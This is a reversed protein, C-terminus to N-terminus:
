TSMREVMWYMGPTTFFLGHEKVKGGTAAEWTRAYNELQPRYYEILAPLESEVAHDTKYDVIVWGDSEEFVLDMQGRLISPIEEEGERVIHFPVEALCHPSQQARKWIESQRVSEVIEVAYPVLSVALDYEMIAAHAASHLDSGPHRMALELLSHIVSGWDPGLGGVSSIAPHPIKSLQKAASIRYTATTTKEWRQAIEQAAAKWAESPIDFVGAQQIQSVTLESLRPFESLHKKFFNWHNKEESKNRLTIVLQSGARTAAVYLLRTEEAAKFKQEEEDLKEWNVPQALVQSWGRRGPETSVALYGLVREGGRTVHLVVPHEVKGTPDALFVVPAELGKVKHLNMIRVVDGTGPRISIADQKEEETVLGQLVEVLTAFSWLMADRSRLIEVAKALAGAQEKGGLRAAAQTMLGLDDIIREVAVVVPLAHIWQTYRKLRGYVDEFAASTEDDLNKPVGAQFNFKGGVKHFQYLQSDSLGSLEGRLVTVLAVPDDPRSLAVLCDTLLALDRTENLGTGGTVEHPIGRARLAAAYQSLHKRGRTVILFDSPRAHSSIGATVEKPSRPMPVKNKITSEILAAIQMSEWAVITENQKCDDPIELVAISPTDPETVDVRGPQLDVYEPSYPDDPGAFQGQFVSNAWKLISPVTRFNSSLRVVKGDTEEIIKRVENYTEIDARRFRYISQKPDGVVFLSGPVPRCKRWNTENGDRATLLLMVEAQVPDTDQFEDVLIHTFRKRFYDRINPKDRLLGAALMLLDQFNLLGNTEKLRQYERAGEELVKMATGYRYERWQRLLPAAVTESFADMRAKEAKAMEKDPWQKQIISAPHFVELLEMIESIQSLNTNRLFRPIKRYLPILNDNGPEGQIQPLIEEIHRVYEVIDKIVNQTEPLPVPETPWEEVDPYLVYTEYAYKLDPLSLGLEVLDDLVPDSEAHLRVAMRRWAQERLSADAEEELEQFELDIGAEVPRERLLRGCFSHVTGIFCQEVRSLAESLCIKENGMATEAARKLELAFRGRLEAAAKRTFTVAALTGTKCKGEALLRVMRGVMCTTKGTGAAAEVLLTTDLQRLISERAAQDPLLPQTTDTM